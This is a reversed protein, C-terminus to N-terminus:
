PTEFSAPSRSTMFALGRCRTMRDAPRVFFAASVPGMAERVSPVLVQDADVDLWREVVLAVAGRSVADAAFDHGDLRTGRICFFLSGSTAADSRYSLGRVLTGVGARVERRPLESVLDVLRRELPTHAVAVSRVAQGPAGGAGAVGAVLASM